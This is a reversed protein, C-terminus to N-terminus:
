HIRQHVRRSVQVAIQHIVQQKYKKKNSNLALQQHAFIYTSSISM